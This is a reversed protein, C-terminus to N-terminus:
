TKRWRPMIEADTSVRVSRIWRRMARTMLYQLREKAMYERGLPAELGIEDHIFLVPRCGYLPSSPVTYCERSVDYLADKAGDAVLGQFMTNAASTFTVHRRVRNSYLQVVRDARDWGRVCDNFYRKVEPYTKFWQAKLKKAQEETLIVGYGNRAFSIFASVGLGGSFGFNCIKAFQRLEKARPDGAKYLKDFTEYDVGMLQAAFARHPDFGRDIVDGLASSGVLERCVEALACLEAVSYDAFVFVFGVRPIFCERVGPRRPMQQVNPGRCSTRGSQVLVNWGPHLLERLHPVFTTLEKNAKEAAALATLVSDSACEQLAESDTKIQGQPYRDTPETRNVMDGLVGEVRDRIPQMNKKWGGDKKREALGHKAIKSFNADVEACLRKRLDSVAKQDTRIGRCQMLHLAWAARCQLAEDPSEYTQNEWVKRTVVGDQAVYNLAERPYQSVPLGDLEGFRLRWGGTKSDSIDIGTRRKAIAALNYKRGNRMRGEKIDILMDRVRTDRVRGEDYAKWVREPMDAGYTEIACALDYAISQNVFLESDLARHFEREADDRAFVEGNHNAVCVIRPAQKGPGILHTEADLVYV